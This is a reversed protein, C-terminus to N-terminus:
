LFRGALYAVVVIVLLAGAGTVVVKLCGEALVRQSM